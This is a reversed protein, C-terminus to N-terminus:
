KLIKKAIQIKKSNELNLFEEVTTTLHEKPSHRSSIHFHRKNCYDYFLEQAVVSNFEDIKSNLGTEIDLLGNLIKRNASGDFLYTLPTAAINDEINIKAGEMVLLKIITPDAKIMCALHLATMGNRDKANVNVGNALLMKLNEYQHGQIANVLLGYMFDDNILIDRAGHDFLIQLIKGEQKKTMALHLPTNGQFNISDVEAGNKLLLEVIDDQQTDVALHLPTNGQKDKANVEAGKALLLEITSAEANAERGFQVALHIAARGFCDRGNLDMASDILYQLEITDGYRAARYLRRELFLDNVINSQDIERIFANFARRVDKFQQEIMSDLESIMVFLHKDQNDYYVKANAYDKVELTETFQTEFLNMELVEYISRDITHGEYSTSLGILHNGGVIAVGAKAHRNLIEIMGKNRRLMGEKSISSSLSGDNDSSRNLDIPFYEMRYKQATEIDIIGGDVFNIDCRINGNLDIQVDHEHYFNIVGLRRAIYLIMHEIYDESDSVHSEGVLILLEKGSLQALEHANLITKELYFFYDSFRKKILSHELNPIDKHQEQLVQKLEPFIKKIVKSENNNITIGYTQSFHQKHSFTIQWATSLIEYGLQAKFYLFEALRDLPYSYETPQGYEDVTGIAKGIWAGVSFIANHKRIALDFTYSVIEPMLCQSNLSLDIDYAFVQTANTSAMPQFSAPGGNM